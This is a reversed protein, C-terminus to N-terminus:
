NEDCYPLPHLRQTENTSLNISENKEEIRGKRRYKCKSCLNALRDKNCSRRTIILLIIILLVLVVLAVVIISIIIPLNDFSEETNKSNFVVPQNRCSQPDEILFPFYDNWFAMKRKRRREEEKKNEDTREDNIRLLNIEHEKFTRWVCDNTPSCTEQNPNGTHIFNVYADYVLKKKSENESVFSKEKRCLGDNGVSSSLRYFYVNNDYRSLFRSFMEFPADFVVDYLFAIIVDDIRNSACASYEFAVTELVTKITTESIDLNEYIRMLTNRIVTREFEEEQEKLEEQLEKKKQEKNYMTKEEEFLCLGDNSNYGIMLDVRNFNGDTLSKLPSILDVNNVIPGWKNNTELSVSSDSATLLKEVPVSHLCNIVNEADTSGLKADTSSKQQSFSANHCGLDRVVASAMDLHREGHERVLRHVTEGSHMIVRQLLHRNDPHLIQYGVSVSAGQKGFLSIKDPNGGFERINDWIWRLAIRQDQLGVNKSLSSSSSSSYFSPPFFYGLIGTRYSVEVVIVEGYIFSDRLEDEFPEAENFVVLVPLDLIDIHGSFSTSLDRPIYIDLYLCDEDRDRNVIGNIPCLPQASTANLNRWRNALKVPNSFRLQGVPPEAYPIGKFETRVKTEGMTMTSGRVSGMKTSIVVHSSHPSPPPLTPTSSAELSRIVDM